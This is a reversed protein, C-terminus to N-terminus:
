PIIISFYKIIGFFNRKGSGLKIALALGKCAMVTVSGVASCFTIYVVVYSNGYIPGLYCFIILCMISIVALYKFFNSNDLKEM